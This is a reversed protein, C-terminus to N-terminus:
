SKSLLRLRFCRGLQALGLDVFSNWGWPLRGQGILYNELGLIAKPEQTHATKHDIDHSSTPRETHPPASRLRERHAIRTLIRPRYGPTSTVAAASGGSVAYRDKLPPILVLDLMGLEIPGPNDRVRSASSTAPLPIACFSVLQTQGSELVTM